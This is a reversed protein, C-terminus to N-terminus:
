WLNNSASVPFTTEERSTVIIRSAATPSKGIQPAPTCRHELAQMQAQWWVEMEGICRDGIRGGNHRCKAKSYNWSYRRRVGITLVQLLEGMLHVRALPVGGNYEAIVQIGGAVIGGRTLRSNHWEFYLLFYGISRITFSTFHVFFCCYVSRATSFYRHYIM